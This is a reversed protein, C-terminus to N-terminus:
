VGAMRALDIAESHSQSGQNEGKEDHQCDNGPHRNTNSEPAFGDGSATAAQARQFAVRCAIDTASIRRM